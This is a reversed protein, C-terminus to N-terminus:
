CGLVGNRSRSVFRQLDARHSPSVLGHQRACFKRSGHSSAYVSNRWISHFDARLHASL